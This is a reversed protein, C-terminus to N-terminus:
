SSHRELSPYFLPRLYLDIEIHAVDFAEKVRHPADHLSATKHARMSPSRGGDEEIRVYSLSQRYHALESLWIVSDVKIETSFAEDDDSGEVEDLSKFAYSDSVFLIELNELSPPLRTYLGNRLAPDDQEDEEFLLLSSAKLSRVNKFQSLELSRESDVNGLTSNFEMTILTQQCSMLARSLDASSVPDDNFNQMPSINCIFTELASCASLVQRLDHNCNTSITLTLKKLSSSYPHRSTSPLVDCGATEQNRHCKVTLRELSPFCILKSIERFSLGPDIITMNQLKALTTAGTDPETPMVREILNALYGSGWFALSLNRLATLKALTQRSQLIKADNPLFASVSLSQTIAALRPTAVLTRHFLDLIEGDGHQGSSYLTVDRYIRTSVLAYTKKNVRALRALDRTRLDKDSLVQDILEPPLHTLSM